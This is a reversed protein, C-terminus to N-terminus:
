RWMSSSRSFSMHKGRGIMYGAVLGLLAGGLHALADAYGGASSLFFIILFWGVLSINVRKTVAYNYSVAGAILGFIGGSAGFSIVLPGNLLSIINGFVGTVLFVTYYQKATYTTAFLRDLWLVAIANFFVDFVGLYTPPAVIISTVLPVVWGQYVLANFQLFYLLLSVGDLSIFSLIAGIILGGVITAVLNRGQKSMNIGFTSGTQRYPTTSSYFGGGTSSYGGSPIV